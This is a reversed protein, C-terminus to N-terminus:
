YVMYVIAAIFFAGTIFWISYLLILFFYGRYLLYETSDSSTSTYDGGCVSGSHSLRFFHLLVIVALSIVDKLKLVKRIVKFNPHYISVIGIMEYILDLGSGIAM